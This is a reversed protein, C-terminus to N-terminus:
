QKEVIIRLFQKGEAVASKATNAEVKIRNTTVPLM